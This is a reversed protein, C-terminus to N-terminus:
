TGQKKRNLLNVFYIMTYLEPMMASHNLFRNLYPKYYM